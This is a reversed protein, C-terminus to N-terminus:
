NKAETPRTFIYADGRREAAKELRDLAAPNIAEQINWWIYRDMAHRSYWLNSGPIVGKLMRVIQNAMAGREREAKEPDSEDGMTKWSTWLKYVDEAKGLMPGSLTQMFGGGYRDADAFLFDGYIGLAGGQAMSAFLVRDDVVPLNFFLIKEDESENQDILGKRNVGTAWGKMVYSAYGALAMAGMYNAIALYHSASGKRVKARPDTSLGHMEMGVGQQLQSVAFSKVDWMCRTMEGAFTGPNTGGTIFAKSRANPERLAKGVEDAYMGMLRNQADVKWNEIAAPTVTRGQSAIHASVDADPLTMAIEPALYSRGDAEITEGKRILEWEAESFGHMQLMDRTTPEIENWGKRAESGLWAAKGIAAAQRNRKNLWTAGQLQYIKAVLNSTFGRSDGNEIERLLGGVTAEIDANMSNLVRSRTEDSKIGRLFEVTHRMSEGWIGSAGRNFRIANIRGVNVFDGTQSLISGGLISSKLISRANAMVNAVIENGPIDVSGNLVARSVDLKKKASQWKLGSKGALQHGVSQHMAERTNEGGPGYIEMLGISKAASGMEGMFNAYIDPNGCRLQYTTWEDPGKFKMNRSLNSRKAAEGPVGGTSYRGSLLNAERSPERFGALLNYAGALYERDVKRGDYTEEDLLPLVFDIWAERHISDGVGPKKSFIGRIWSRTAGTRGGNAFERLAWADHEQHLMRGKLEGIDVGRRRQEMLSLKQYKDMIEAIKLHDANYARGIGESNGSHIDFLANVINRSFEKQQAIKLLGARNLEHAAGDQLVKAWQRRQYDVSKSRAGPLNYESGGDLALAGEVENGTFQMIHTIGEHMKVANMTARYRALEASSQDEKIAAVVDGNFKRFRAVIGDAEERSLGAKMAAVALQDDNLDPNIAINDYAKKYVERVKRSVEKAAKIEDIEPRARMEAFMAKREMEGGHQLARVAISHVDEPSLDMGRLTPFTSYLYAKIKAVVERVIKVIATRVTPDTIRAWEAGSPWEEKGISAKELHQVLYAIREEAIHAPNTRTPVLSDVVARLDPSKDLLAGVKVQLDKFGKRGLMAEMGVHVGYEHLFYSAAEGPKIRDAALYSKKGITAGVATLKESDTLGPIKDLPVIEFGAKKAVELADAGFRSQIEQIVPSEFKGAEGEAMRIDPNAPDFTGRNGTASKIQKPSFPIWTVSIIDEGNEDFSDPMKIGDYGKDKSASVLDERFGKRNIIQYLDREYPISRHLGDVDFDLSRLKSILENRADGRRPPLSSLDLPNQISLAVPLMHAGQAQAFQSSYQPSESFMNWDGGLDEAKPNKFVSFVEGGANTGHYVVLPSGAEDVVKSDGFWKWFNRAEEETRGLPRGASNKTSRQVGDIEISEPLDPISAFKTDEGAKSLIEKLRAEAEDAMAGFDDEPMAMRENAYKEAKASEQADWHNRPDTAKAIQSAAETQPAQRINQDADIVSEVGILAGNQAQLDAIAEANSRGQDSAARWKETPGQPEVIQAIADRIAAEPPMTKANEIYSSVMRAMREPQGTLAVAARAADIQEPALQKLSGFSVGEDVSFGSARDEALADFVKALPEIDAARKVIEGENAKLASVIEVALPDTKAAAERLISREGLADRLGSVVEVPERRFPAGAWGRSPRYQAPEVGPPSVKVPELNDPTIPEAIKEPAIYDLEPHNAKLGEAVAKDHEIIKRWEQSETGFKQRVWEHSSRDALPSIGEGILGAGSKFAGGLAASSGIEALADDMTYDGGLGIRVGASLPATMAGGVAGEVAGVATRALIRGTLGARVTAAALIQAERAEGVIPVFNLAGAVPDAMSGAMGGVFSALGSARALKEEGESRDEALAMLKALGVDTMGGAPINLDPHGEAVARSKADEKTLLQGMQNGLRVENLLLGGFMPGSIAAEEFSSKLSQGFSLPLRESEASDQNQADVFTPM